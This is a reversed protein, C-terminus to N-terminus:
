WINKKPQAYCIAMERTWPCPQWSAGAATTGKWRDHSDRPRAARGHKPWTEPPLRPFDRPHQTKQCPVLFFWPLKWFIIVSGSSKPHIKGSNESFGLHCAEHSLFVGCSPPQSILSGGLWLPAIFILQSPTLFLAISFSQLNKQFIVEWFFFQIGNQRPSILINSLQLASNVRTIRHKAASAPLCM